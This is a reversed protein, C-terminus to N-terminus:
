SAAQKICLMVHSFMLDQSYGWDDPHAGQHETVSLRTKSRTPLVYHANGLGGTDAFVPDWICHAVVVNRPVFITRDNIPGQGIPDWASPQFGGVFDVDRPFDGAYLAAAGAGLSDGMLALFGTFGHLYNYIGQRNDHAFTQVEVGQVQLRHALTPLGAMTETLPWGQGGILAIRATM